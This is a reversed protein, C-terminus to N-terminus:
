EKTRHEEATEVRRDELNVFQLCTDRLINGDDVCGTRLFLYIMSKEHVKKKKQSQGFM